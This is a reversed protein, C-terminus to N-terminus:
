PWCARSAHHTQTGTKFLPWGHASSQLLGSTWSREVKCSSSPASTQESAPHVTPERDARALAGSAPQAWQDRPVTCLLRSPPLAAHSRDRLWRAAISTFRRCQSVVCRSLAMSVSRGGGWGSCLPGQSQRCCAARRHLSAPECRSAGM